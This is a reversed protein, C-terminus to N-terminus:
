AHARGSRWRDRPGHACEGRFGPRESLHIWRHCSVVPGCLSDAHWGLWDMGRDADPVHVQADGVKVALDVEVPVDEAEVESGVAALVADVGREERRAVVVM